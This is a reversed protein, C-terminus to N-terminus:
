LTSKNSLNIGNEINIVLHPGLQPFKMQSEEALNVCHWDSLRIIAKVTGMLARLCIVIALSPLPAAEDLEIVPRLSSVSLPRPAFNPSVPSRPYEDRCQKQAGSEGYAM